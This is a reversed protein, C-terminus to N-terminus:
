NIDTHLSQITKSLADCAQLPMNEIGLTKKIKDNSVRYNQTLKALRQQNFPLRCLTGLRALAEIFSKNINCIHAKKGIVQAIIKVLTKTSVSQDDCVNYIGSPAKSDLLRAVVYSLNDISTFTRENDYLGLPYPVGLSIMKYLLNLNGKNGRGYIMSPRLIYVQKTHPINNSVYCEAAYKTTAYIGVPSPTVDEYLVDDVNQAVAAVSSFHIFIQATSSCFYDFITKTLVENVECYLSPKIKNGMDHAIGALHIFADIHQPLQEINDWTFMEEVGDIPTTTTALGYLTHHSSLARVLNKGVFGHIGTILINM